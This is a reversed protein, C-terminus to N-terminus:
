ERIWRSSGYGFVYPIPSKATLPRNAKAYEIYKKFESIQSNIQDQTYGDRNLTNKLQDKLIIDLPRGPPSILMIGALDNYQALLMALLAGESHGLLFVNDQKTERKMKLAELCCESDSVLKQIGSDSFSRDECIITSRDDVSLTMVGNDALWDLIIHTGIDIGNAIGHKDQYGSGSIFLVTPYPADKHKPKRYIGSLRYGDNTKIVTDEYFIRPNNSISYVPHKEFIISEYWPPENIHERVIRLGLSDFKFEKIHYEGNILLEAGFNTKWRLDTIMEAIYPILQLSNVHFCLAAIRTAKRIRLALFLWEFVLFNSEYIFDCDKVDLCFKKDENIIKAEGENIPINIIGGTGESKYMYPMGNEKLSLEARRTLNKVTTSSYSSLDMKLLSQLNNVDSSNSPIRRLWNSGIIKENRYFSFELPYRLLHDIDQM